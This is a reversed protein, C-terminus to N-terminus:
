KKKKRVVYAQKDMQSAFDSMAETAAYFKENPAFGKRMLAVRVNDLYQRTVEKFTTKGSRTMRAPKVYFPNPLSRRSLRSRKRSM